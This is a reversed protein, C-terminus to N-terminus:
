VRHGRVTIAGPTQVALVPRFRVLPPGEPRFEV